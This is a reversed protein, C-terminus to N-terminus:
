IGMRILGWVEAEQSPPVRGLHGLLVNFREM